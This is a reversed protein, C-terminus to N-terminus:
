PLKHAPQYPIYERMPRRKRPDSHKMHEEISAALEEQDHSRLYHLSADFLEQNRGISLFGPLHNQAWKKTQLYVLTAGTPHHLGDVMFDVLNRAQHQNIGNALLLDLDTLVARLLQPDSFINATTAADLNTYNELIDTGTIRQTIARNQIAPAILRHEIPLAQQVAIQEKIVQVDHDAVTIDVIEKFGDDQSLLASLVPNAMLAQRLYVFRQVPPLGSAIRVVEKAPDTNMQDILEAILQYEAGTQVRRYGHHYTESLSWGYKGHSEFVALIHSGIPGGIQTIAVVKYFGSKVRPWFSMLDLDLMAGVAELAETSLLSHALWGNKWRYLPRIVIDRNVGQADVESKVGLGALAGAGFLIALTIPDAM